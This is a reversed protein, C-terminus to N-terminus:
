PKYNIKRLFDRRWKRDDDTEVGLPSSGDIVGLVGRGQGSGAVIVQLPNATAAFIGCVEPVSKVANLVNIPYCDKMFIVFLHGASIDKAANEALKRLEPDNGELRILRKGSAECFALGFKAHPCSNAMAEYLDEATKIFHAQGVIVNCGEPVIVGIAELRLGDDM